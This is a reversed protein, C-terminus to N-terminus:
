EAIRKSAGMVSTPRVAKDTSIMVLRAVDHEAALEVVNWTGVINNTVAEGPNHEMLPVHKHAAAHFVLEPAFEQYVKGLRVRSRIDAIIPVLPVDPWRRRLE